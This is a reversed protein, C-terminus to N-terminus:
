DPRLQRTWAALAQLLEGIFQGTKEDKLSGDAAFKDAAQAIMVEPRNLPHMDLFVCIQRLHYQARATGLLSTSAGMIACPKGQFPQSPPRSAWDIANKLVGPVSYNYEPTVFLIADAAAIEDRLQTVSSPYGAERVDENYPSIDDLRAINIAVDAPARAIAANLAMRNFSQARLSGLLALVRLPRTMVHEM